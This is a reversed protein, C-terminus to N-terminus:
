DTWAAEHSGGSPAAQLHCVRNRLVPLDLDATQPLGGTRQEHGESRGGQASPVHPKQPYWSWQPPGWRMGQAGVQEADGKLPHTEVDPGCPCVSM